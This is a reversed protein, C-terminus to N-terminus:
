SRDERLAVRSRDIAAVLTAAHDDASWPSLDPWDARTLTWVQEALTDLTAVPGPLSESSGDVHAAVTITRVGISWPLLSRVSLAPGAPHIGAIVIAIDIEVLATPLDLETVARWGDLALSGLSSRTAGADITEVRHWVQTALGAREADWALVALRPKKPDEIARPSSGRLDIAPGLQIPHGNSTVFEGSSTSQVRVLRPEDYDAILATIEDSANGLVVVADVLALERALWLSLEGSRPLDLTRYQLEPYVDAFQRLPASGRHRLLHTLSDSRRPEIFVVEHGTRTLSRMIARWSTALPNDMDSRISEGFVMVRRRWEVDGREVTGGFAPTPEAGLPEDATM